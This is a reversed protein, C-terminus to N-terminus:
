ENDLKKKGNKYNHLLKMIEKCMKVTVHHQTIKLTKEHRKLKTFYESTKSM